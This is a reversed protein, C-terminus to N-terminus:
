KTSQSYFYHLIITEDFLNESLLCHFDTVSVEVIYKFGADTKYVHTNEWQIAQSWMNKIRYIMQLFAM